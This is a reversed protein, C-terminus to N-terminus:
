RTFDDQTETEDGEGELPIGLAACVEYVTGDVAVPTNDVQMYIMSSDGDRPRVAHVVKANIPFGEDQYSLWVWRPWRDENAIALQSAIEGLFYLETYRSRAAASGDTLRQLADQIEESKM